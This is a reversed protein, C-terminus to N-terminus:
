SSTYRVTKPTFTIIEFLTFTVTRLLIISLLLLPFSNSGRIFSITISLVYIYKLYIMSIFFMALDISREKHTQRLRAPQSAAPPRHDQRSARASQSTQSMQSAPQHSAPTTSVTKSVSSLIVTERPDERQREYVSSVTLSNFRRSFFLCFKVLFFSPFHALVAIAM